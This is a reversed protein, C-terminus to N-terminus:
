CPQNGITNISLSIAARDVELLDLASCSHLDCMRNNLVLFCCKTKNLLYILLLNKSLYSQNLERKSDEDFYLTSM